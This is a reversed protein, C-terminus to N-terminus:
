LFSFCFTSSFPFCHFKAINLFKRLRRFKEVQLIECTAFNGEQQWQEDQLWQEDQAKSKRRRQSKSEKQKGKPKRGLKGWQLLIQKQNKQYKIHPTPLLLGWALCELPIETMLLIEKQHSAKLEAVEKEEAENERM